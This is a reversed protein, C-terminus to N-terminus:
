EASPAIPNRPPPPPPPPPSPSPSSACCLWVKLPNLWRSLNRHDPRVKLPDVESFIANSRQWQNGRWYSYCQVVFCFSYAEDIARSRKLKQCLPLHKLWFHCNFCKEEEPTSRGNSLLKRESCSGRMTESRPDSWCLLDNCSSAMLTIQEEDTKSAFPDM